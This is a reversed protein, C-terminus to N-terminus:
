LEVAIIGKPNGNRDKQFFDLYTKGSVADAIANARFFEGGYKAKQAARKHSFDFFVPDLEKLYARDVGESEWCFDFDNPFEKDNAFSGGIYIRPCGALKLSECGRKLGRLLEQRRENFALAEEVEQWTALHIGEPLNGNKDFKPISM